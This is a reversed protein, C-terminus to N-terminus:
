CCRCRLDRCRLASEAPGVPTRPSLGCAVFGSRGASRAPRRPTCRWARTQPATPLRGRCASRGRSRAGRDMLANFRFGAGAGNAVHQGRFSEFGAALFEIDEARGLGIAVALGHAWCSMRMAASPNWSRVPGAQAYAAEAGARDGQHLCIMAFSLAPFVTAVGCTTDVADPRLHDPIQGSLEIAGSRDFGIHLGAQCLIVACAGFAVPHGMDNFVTFSERALRVAESYRGTALALTAATHLFHWRGLPGPLRELCIELDALERHVSRLQGTEL